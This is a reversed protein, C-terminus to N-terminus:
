MVYHSWSVGEGQLFFFSAWFVRYYKQRNGPRAMRSICIEFHVFIEETGSQPRSGDCSAWPPHYQSGTVSRSDKVKGIDPIGEECQGLLALGQTGVLQGPVGIVLKPPQLDGGPDLLGNFQAGQGDAGLREM